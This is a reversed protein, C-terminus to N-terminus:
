RYNAFLLDALVRWGLLFGLALIVLLVCITVLGERMPTESPKSATYHWPMDALKKQLDLLKRDCYPCRQLNLWCNNTFPFTRHCFQCEMEDSNTKIAEDPPKKRHPNVLAILKGCHPCEVSEGVGNEPFEISGECLPCDMQIFKGEDDPHPPKFRVPSLSSQEPNLVCLDTVPFVQFRGPPSVSASFNTVPLETSFFRIIRDNAEITINAKPKYSKLLKLFVDHALTCTGDEFVLAEIGATTENAEVFVRAACASLRVMMDRRKKAPMKKGVLELMKVM